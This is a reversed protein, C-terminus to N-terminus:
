KKEIGNLYKGKKLIFKERWYVNLINRVEIAREETFECAYPIRTTFKVSKDCIKMVYRRPYNETCVNFTSKM